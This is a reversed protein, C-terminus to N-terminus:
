NKSQLYRAWLSKLFLKNERYSTYYQDAQEKLHPMMEADLQSRLIQKGNKWYYGNGMGIPLQFINSDTFYPIPDVAGAFGNSFDETFSGDARKWCIYMGFHLHAGTTYKGTNNAVGVEM